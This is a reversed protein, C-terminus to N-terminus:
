GGLGYGKLRALLTNRAIGLSKAAQSRNGGSKALAEEIRARELQQVDAHLAQGAPPADLKLELDELRIVRSPRALLAREITTKLERVGGPWAHAQLAQVADANIHGTEGAFARALPEIDGPRARLPPVDIVAGALRRMLDRRETRRSATALLRVRARRPTIGGVRFSQGYELAHLLRSEIGVPLADIHELLMTGGDAAELAGERASRAGDSEVGFLEAELQAESMARCSVRVFAARARRSQAHLYAAFTCKGVGDEGLFLVPFETPALRAVRELITRSVDDAAIPPSAKPETAPAADARAARARAHAFLGGPDSADEPCLAIGVDVHTGGIRGLVRAAFGEAVDRTAHPLLVRAEGRHGAGVVDGGRCEARVAERLATERSPALVTVIAFKLGYKRARACETLVRAEFYNETRVSIGSAHARARQVLVTVEGVSFSDGPALTAVEGRQLKRVGVRTGNASGLDELRLPGVHVRAHRRSVSPDAISVECERARGLVVAGRTPLAVSEVTSDGVVLLALPTGHESPPSCTTDEFPM